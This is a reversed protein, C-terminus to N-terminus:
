QRLVEGGVEDGVGDWPTALGFKGGHRHSGDASAAVVRTDPRLWGVPM